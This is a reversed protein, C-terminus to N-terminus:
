LGTALKWLGDLWAAGPLAGAAPADEPSDEVTALATERSCSELTWGLPTEQRLLQGEPGIWTLMDMGGYGVSLVTADRDEGEIMLTERRLARVVITAPQRTVPNMTRISMQQGPKLRKVAM